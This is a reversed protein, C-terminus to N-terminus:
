FTQRWHQVVAQGALAKEASLQECKASFSPNDVDAKVFFSFFM